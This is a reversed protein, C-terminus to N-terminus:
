KGLLPQVKLRVFGDAFKRSGLESAQLWLSNVYLDLFKMSFYSFQANRIALFVWVFLLFGWLFGFTSKKILVSLSVEPLWSYTNKQPIYKFQLYELLSSEFPFFFTHHTKM